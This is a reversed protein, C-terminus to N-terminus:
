RDGAAAPPSAVSPLGFRVTVGPSYLVSVPPGSPRSIGATTVVNEKLVPLRARRLPWEDHENPLYLTRGRWRLHLGWRATLFRELPSPQTIREQVSVLARVSTGRVGPWRRRSSYAVSTGARHLSMKSWAYPLRAGIRGVLVPLLREADLSLFVVGRHGARDVSYLRVNTECFTRLYPLGPEGPLRVGDMRFLVLGVYTVGDISDPRTGDPFHDAVRAPEVPWHLFTVENWCQLLTARRVPRPSLRSIAEPIM